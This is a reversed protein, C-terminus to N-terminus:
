KIKAREARIAYERSVAERLCERAEPPTFANEQGPTQSLRLIQKSQAVWLLASEWEAPKLGSKMANCYGCLLALNGQRAQKRYYCM